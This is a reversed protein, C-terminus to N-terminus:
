DEVKVNIQSIYIDSTSDNEVKWKVIQGSSSFSNRTGSTVTEWTTGNDNTLYYVPSDGSIKTATLTAANVDTNNMYIIKSQISSSGDFHAVRASNITSTIEIFVNSTSDIFQTSLFREKFTKNPPIVRVDTFESSQSGLYNIGLKGGVSSGLVFSSSSSNGWKSTGWIGFGDSEWIMTEGAINKTQIITAQEEFILTEKFAKFTRIPQGNLKAQSKIEVKDNSNEKLINVLQSAM